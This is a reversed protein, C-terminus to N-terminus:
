PLGTSFVEIRIREAGKELLDKQIEKMFLEPGCVFYEASRDWIFLDREAHLKRLDVRGKHQYGVGEM